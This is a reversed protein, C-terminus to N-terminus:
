TEVDVLTGIPTSPWVQGAADPQLEVCGLSQPVGYSGRNFGHIADGGHFYSIWPIGPDHYHSGDPNTGSMTGVALREYVPYVGPDTPAAPIGTNAPPTLLIKGNHWLTLTQPIARQVIVFSYGFTSRTREVASTMLARWVQPGLLGDTTLHHDYEFAMLAGQLVKGDEGPRWLGRLQAPIHGYRWSFHGAPPAVSAAAEAQPARRVGRTAASWTVPLYGLQALLQEARLTSGPAVDWGLSQVTNRSSAGGVLAVAHPLRIRVHGNTPFGYGTPTFTLTHSDVRRWTGPTAPEIRPRQGGLVEAVPRSFAIRIRATPSLRAGPAPSVVASTTAGAPFWSVAAAAPLREWTRPAGAVELLGAASSRPFSVVRAASPLVRPRRHAGAGVGVVRVPQAFRVKVPQGTGLTLWRRTVRTGPTRMTLHLHEDSGLLWGVASPRRVVVDVSVRENTPLARRPWLRGQRLNLPIVAGHPGVARVHVVTSGPPLDVHALATQDAGLHVPSWVLAAVGVAAGALVVVGGGIWAM